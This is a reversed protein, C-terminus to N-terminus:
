ICNHNNSKKRPVAPTWFIILALTALVLASLQSLWIEQAHASVSSITVCFKKKYKARPVNSVHPYSHKQICGEEQKRVIVVCAIWM